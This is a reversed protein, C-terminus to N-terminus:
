PVLRPSPMLPRPRPCQAEVARTRRCSLVSGPLLVWTNSPPEDVPWRGCDSSLLAVVTTAQGSSDPKGGGRRSRGHPRSCHSPGRLTTRTRRAGLWVSVHAERCANWHGIATLGMDSAESGHLSMPRLTWVLVDRKHWADIRHSKSDGAKVFLAKGEEAVVLSRTCSWLNAIGSGLFVSASEKMTM